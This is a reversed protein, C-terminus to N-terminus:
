MPSEHIEVIPDRTRILEQNLIEDLVEALDKQRYNIMVPKLTIRFKVRDKTAEEIFVEEDVRFVTTKLKKVVLQIEDYMTNIEETKRLSIILFIKPRDVRIISRALVSNLIQITGYRPNQIVSSIPDITALKGTIPELYGPIRVSVYENIPIKRMILQLYALFERLIHYFLTIVIILAISVYVYIYLHPVVIHLIIITIIISLAIDIIRGILNRSSLSIKKKKVLGELMLNDIIFRLTLAAIITVVIPILYESIFKEISM